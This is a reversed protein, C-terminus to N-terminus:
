AGNYIGQEIVQRLMPVVREQVAEVKGNVTAGAAQKHGGGGLAFAVSSVDYGVNSRLSIEVRGDNREKFVVAVVAEEVVALLSVLGGDTADYYGVKKMDDARVTASVLRDQLKLTPLSLAWLHIAAYPKSVMTRYTIDSLSPGLTMLEEVIRLTAPVVNSTRLGMTDTIMGTLLATASELSVPHEMWKLWRYVMEAASVALPDVLHIHGFGTNTAHHDLNIVMASHSRGFAGAEGTRPEDSADLSVMVDWQGNIRRSVEKWGPIFELFDPVGDDVAVEVKKGMESLAHYLGLMSGIADGDPSIHTVLLISQAARIANTAEAWQVVELTM